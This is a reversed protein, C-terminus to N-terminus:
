SKFSKRANAFKSFGPAWCHRTNPGHGGNLCQVPSQRSELVDRTEVKSLEIHEVPVAAANTGSKSLGLLAAGITFLSKM